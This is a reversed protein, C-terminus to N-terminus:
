ATDTLNAGAITFGDLRTPFLLGDAIVTRPESSTITTVHAVLDRESFADNFGGFMSINEHVVVQEDYTGGAVVVVCGFCSTARIIGMQVHRLAESPKKGSHTDDGTTSVYIAEPCYEMGENPVLCFPMAGDMPPGLMGTTSADPPPPAAGADPAGNGGAGTHM